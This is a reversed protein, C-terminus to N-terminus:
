SREREEDRELRVSVRKMGGIEGGCGRVVFKCPSICVYVCMHIYIYNEWGTCCRRERLISGEELFEQRLAECRMRDEGGVEELVRAHDLAMSRREYRSGIATPTSPPRFRPPDRPRDGIRPDRASCVRTWRGLVM